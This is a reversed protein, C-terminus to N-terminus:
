YQADIAAKSWEVDTDVGALRSHMASIEDIVRDWHVRHEYAVPVPDLEGSLVGKVLRYALTRAHDLSILTVTRDFMERPDARGGEIVLEKPSLLRSGTRLAAVDLKHILGEDVRERRGHVVSGLPGSLTLSVQWRVPPRGLTLLWWEVLQDAQPWALFRLPNLREGVGAVTVLEGALPNGDEPSSM